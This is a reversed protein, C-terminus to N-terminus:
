YWGDSLLGCAIRQETILRRKFMIYFEPNAYAYTCMDEITRFSNDVGDIRFGGGSGAIGGTKRAWTMVTRADDIFGQGLPNEPDRIMTFEGLRIGNGVKNKIVKFSHENHSVLATGQEKEGLHERNLIEIKVSAVYHQALGGPLVRPDGFGGIKMRWQNLLIIAPLHGRKREELMSNQVKRCFKAILSAQIGMFQDQISADREKVPILGALSDVVVISTEEADIVAVTIDLAQEGSQPQVLYLRDNDVGHIQGWNLDYTGEVDIFVARKNPYKRQAQGICRTALTTKGSSERGYILTALGEPVGGLLGMDLVFIGTPIHQFPPKQSALHMVHKGYNKHVDDVVKALEGRSRSRAVVM